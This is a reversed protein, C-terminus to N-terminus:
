SPAPRTNIGISADGQCPPHSSVVFGPYAASAPLIQSWHRQEYPPAFRSGSIYRSAAVDHM